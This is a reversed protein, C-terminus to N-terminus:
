HGVFIVSFVHLNSLLLHTFGRVGSLKTEKTMQVPRTCLLPPRLGNKSEMEAGTGFKKIRTRFKKLNSFGVPGTKWLIKVGAEPGVFVCSGAPTSEPVGSGHGGRTCLVRYHKRSQVTWVWSVLTLHSLIKM